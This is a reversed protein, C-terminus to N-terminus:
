CNGCGVETFVVTNIKVQNTANFHVFDIRNQYKNTFKVVDAEANKTVCFITIPSTECSDVEFFTFLVFM